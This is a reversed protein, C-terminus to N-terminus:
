PSFSAAPVAASRGVTTTDQVGRAHSTLGPTRSRTTPMQARRAHSADVAIEGGRVRRIEEDGLKLLDKANFIVEGSEIRGSPTPILRLISLAHVSKGSGSEGVVGLTEGEQLTYTVNNVAARRRRGHLVARGPRPDRATSGGAEVEGLSHASHAPRCGPSM